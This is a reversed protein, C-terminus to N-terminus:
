ILLSQPRAVINRLVSDPKIYRRVEPKAHWLILNSDESYDSLFNSLILKCGWFQGLRLKKKTLKWIKWASYEISERFSKQRWQLLSLHNSNVNVTFSNLLLGIADAELDAIQISLKTERPIYNSKFENQIGFINSCRSEIIGQPSYPLFERM